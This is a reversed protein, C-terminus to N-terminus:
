QAIIERILKTPRPTSTILCRPDTGLRLGFLLNEYTEAYSWSALEDCWAAECQPGRLRDPEEAPFLFARAGNPWELTRLRVRYDPRFHPPSIALVGSPGEVMTGRVDSETRGVLHLRGYVGGEVRARLWEAGARTKGAGRGSRM